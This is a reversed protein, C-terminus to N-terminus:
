EESKLRRERKEYITKIRTFVNFQFFPELNFNRLLFLPMIWYVSFSFLLYSAEYDCLM